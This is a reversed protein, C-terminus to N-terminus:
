ENVIDLYRKNWKPMEEHTLNKSYIITEEDYSEWTDMYEKCLPEISLRIHDNVIIRLFKKDLRYVMNITDLFLRKGLGNNRYNPLIGFRGIFIDDPYEALEYYGTIGIVEKNLYALYYKINPNDAHVTQNFYELSKKDEAFIEEQLKIALDINNEDLVKYTIDVEQHDGDGLLPTNLIRMKKDNNFIYLLESFNKDPDLMLTALDDLEKLEDPSLSFFNNEIYTPSFLYSVENGMLAHFDFFLTNALMGLGQYSAGHVYKEIKDKGSRVDLWIKAIWCFSEKKMDTHDSGSDTDPDCIVWRKEDKKYYEIIWHDVSKGNSSFYSAFGSRVRTPIGKAKLISALWIAVYRCTIVIKKNIERGHFIGREDLRNLEAMIAPATLLIDDHSRYGWWPYETAVGDGSKGTENLRISSRILEKRHITQELLLSTLEEMDDPLSQYYKKYPGWNTFISPKLYYNLIEEKM